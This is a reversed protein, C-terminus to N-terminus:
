LSVKLCLCHLLSSLLKMDTPFSRVHSTRRYCLVYACVRYGAYREGVCCYLDTCMCRGLLIIMEYFVFNMVSFRSTDHYVLQFYCSIGVALSM